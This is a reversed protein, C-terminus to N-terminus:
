PEIEAMKAKHTLTNIMSRVYMGSVTKIGSDPRKHDDEHKLLERGHGAADEYADRKAEAQWKAKVEKWTDSASDIAGKLWVLATIDPGWQDNTKEDDLVRRITTVLAVNEQELAEIKRKMHFIRNLSKGHKAIEEDYRAKLVGYASVARGGM